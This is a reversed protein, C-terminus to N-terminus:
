RKIKNLTLLGEKAGMFSVVSASNKIAWSLAKKVSYDYCLAAVFASGFSDGAGTEDVPTTNIIPSFLNQDSALIHAGRRGNTVAIIQSGTKQLKQWYDTQGFDALILAESEVRNLLLFDIQSLLPLLIKRNSIERNGPNLAIKINNEKAFGILQELLNLNGELSTLYFWKTKKIKNWPINASELRSSGRHTLISRGGDPAVLIISFDTSEDKKAVLLRSNVKNQLLEQTIIHSLSDLGLLSVIAANLGLRSFATASNTAGGGSCILSHDIENKSSYELFLNKDKVRFHDSKAFIDVTAAGFSIIDLM